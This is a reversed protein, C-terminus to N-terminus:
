IPGNGPRGRKIVQGVTFIFFASNRHGRKNLEEVLSEDTFVLFSADHAHDGCSGALAEQLETKGLATACEVLVSPRLIRSEDEKDIPFKWEQHALSYWPLHRM